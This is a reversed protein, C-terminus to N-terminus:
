SGEIFIVLGDRRNSIVAIRSHFGDKIDFVDRVLEEVNANGSEDFPTGTWIPEGLVTLAKARSDSGVKITKFIAARWKVQDSLIPSPEFEHHLNRILQAQSGDPASKVSCFIAPFSLLAFLGIFSIKIM